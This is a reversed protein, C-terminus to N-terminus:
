LTSVITAPPHSAPTRVPGSHGPGSVATHPSWQSTSLPGTYQGETLTMDATRRDSAPQQSRRQKMEALTADLDDTTIALTDEAICHVFVICQV